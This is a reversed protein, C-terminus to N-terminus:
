ESSSARTLPLRPTEHHYFPRDIQDRQNIRNTKNNQNM